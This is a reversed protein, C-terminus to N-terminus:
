MRPVLCNGIWWLRLPPMIEPHVLIWWPWTYRGRSKYKLKSYFEMTRLEDWRPPVTQPVAAWQLGLSPRRRLVAPNDVLPVSVPKERNRTSPSRLPLRRLRGSKRLQPAAGAMHAPKSSPRRRRKQKTRRVSKAFRHRGNAKKQPASSGRQVQRQAEIVRGAGMLHVRARRRREARARNRRQRRAAM